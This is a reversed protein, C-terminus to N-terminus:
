PTAVGRSPSNELSSSDSAHSASPQSSNWQNPALDSPIYKTKGIFPPRNSHERAIFDDVAQVLDYDCRHRAGNSSQPSLNDQCFLVTHRRGTRHIEVVERQTLPIPKARHQTGQGLFSAQPACLMTSRPRSQDPSLKLRRPSPMRWISILFQAAAVAHGTHM